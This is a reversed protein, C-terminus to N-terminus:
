QHQRKPTTALTRHDHHPTTRATPRSLRDLRPLTMRPKKNHTKNGSKEITQCKKRGEDTYVNNKLDNGQTATDEETKKSNMSITMEKIPAIVSPNWEAARRTWREEKHFAVRMAQRWKLKRQTEVWNGLKFPQMKAEVEQTSRKIYERTRIRIAKASLKSALAMTRFMATSRIKNMNVRALKHAGKTIKNKMRTHQIKSKYRRRGPEAELSKSKRDVCGQTAEGTEVASRRGKLRRRLWDLTPRASQEGLAGNEEIGLLARYKELTLWRTTESEAAAVSNLDCQRQVFKSVLLEHGPERQM